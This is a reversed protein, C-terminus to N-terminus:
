RWPVRTKIGGQPGRNKKNCMLNLHMMMIMELYGVILETVNEPQLHFLDLVIVFGIDHHVSCFNCGANAARKENLHHELCLKCEDCGDKVIGCKPFSAENQEENWSVWRCTCKWVEQLTSYPTSPSWSQHYKWHGMHVHWLLLLWSWYSWWSQSRSLITGMIVIHRGCCDAHFESGNGARRMKVLSM